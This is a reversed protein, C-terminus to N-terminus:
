PIRFSIRENTPISVKAGEEIKIKAKRHINLNAGEDVIISCGTPIVLHAKKDVLLTAGKKVHLTSMEDLQLISRSNLHLQAGKDVTFTTPPAFEGSISDRNVRTPVTSQNLLLKVNKALELKEKLVISGTYRANNTLTYDDWRIHVKYTRCSDGFGSVHEETLEIRLGTLYINRTNRETKVERIKGGGQYVYNTVQNVPVPNSGLNLVTGSTFVDNNEGHRPWGRAITSDPLQKIYISSEQKNTLTNGDNTIFSASQDNQGSLPNAEGYSFVMRNNHGWPVCDTGMGQYIFDYNGGATLMKLNDTENSPFVSDRRSSELVDKGVQVYMFVGPIGADKCDLYAFMYFDEKNNRGIQHNEIWLYQKSSAENDRYPLEIRIADGTTIFDRLYFTHEGDNQTIDSTEGSAQIPIKEPNYKPSTWKLRWREYGNVCVLSSRGGGLMGYGSQIGMFTCMSYTSFHNGGSAHFENGGLLKHALEHDLITTNGSTVDDSGLHQVTYSNADAKVGEVLIDLNLNGGSMGGSPLNGGVKSSNRFMINVIDIKRDGDMSFDSIHGKGNLTNGTLGGKENILKVAYILAQRWSFRGSESINSQRVNVSVAEGLLNFHGFSAEYFRKTLSGPSQQVNMTDPLFYYGAFPPMEVNVGEITAPKWRKNSPETDRTVDYIINIYINLCRYTKYPSIGAGDWSKFQAQVFFGPLICLLFLFTQLKKAM